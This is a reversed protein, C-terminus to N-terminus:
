KNKLNREIERKASKEAEVERKDYNKKGKCLGIEVKIRSGKLYVSLPVITLGDKRVANFLKLIEQKHLLLRRERLPEKNFINGQEYPSIHMGKILMEGNEVACWSDKLNVRGARASKVETGCLEIGAEYKELIFYEYYAKKNNSIQANQTKQMRTKVKCMHHAYKLNAQIKRMEARLNSLALACLM